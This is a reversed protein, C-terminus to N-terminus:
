NIRRFGKGKMERAPKRDFSVFTGDFVHEKDMILLVKIWITVPLRPLSLVFSRGLIEHILLDRM